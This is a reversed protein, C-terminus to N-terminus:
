IPDVQGELPVLFSPSRRYETPTKGDSGITRVVVTRVKGDRVNPKADTVLAIKWRSRPLNEGKLLVIEGEKPARVVEGKNGKGFGREGLDGLYEKSFRNWFSQLLKNLFKLRERAIQPDKRDIKIGDIPPLDTLNFGSILMSPTLAGEGEPGDYVYTLPRCNIICEAEYVFTLFEEYELSTGGVVKKINSKFLGVVREIFGGQWPARELYFSWQIRRGQLFDQLKKSSFLVKLERAVCKFTSANDSIITSPFGRRSFFRRFGMMFGKVSLSQVAEFHVARVVACTFVLCYGKADRGKLSFPGAFDLGVHLFPRSVGLRCKPLPPPPPLAFAKALVKRCVFCDRLLSTVLKRGRPIYFEAKVSALTQRVGAHGIHHHINIILIKTFKSDNPLLIPYFQSHPLSSDALRTYCRLVEVETDWFLGFQRIISSPVKDGMVVNKHNNQCFKLERQYHCRQVSRVWELEIEAPTKPSFTSWDVKGKRCMKFAFMAKYVSRTVSMLRSYRNTVESSICSVLGHLEVKVFSVPSPLERRFDEPMSTFCLNMKGQFPREGTILFSPGEYWLTNGILEELLCGRTPLDAPNQSTHVYNWDRPDSLLMIQKIRNAIFVPWSYHASQIWHLVSMCDTYYVKSHISIHNLMNVATSMLNTLLVASCLEMRPITMGKAPAIRSKSIVLSSKVKIGDNSVLYVVAAYAQSSADCFGCLNYSVSNPLSILRDFKLQPLHVLNNKWVIWDRKIDEPLHDNWDIKALHTRQMLQKAILVFPSLTGLPDFVTQMLSFLQRKTDSNEQNLKELIRDSNISVLDTCTEWILGLVSEKEPPNEGTSTSFVQKLEEDNSNWKCLNFAGLKLTSTALEYFEVCEDKSEASHLCDDVYFNELIKEILIPDLDSNELHHRLTAALIFPSSKLGFPLRQFKYIYVNDDKRWLFRLAEQDVPDIEIQLFAKEIDAIIAYQHLRFRILISALSNILSPGTELCDNLSVAGKFPKASADYVVRLKGTSQKIVSHHPLYHVTSNPVEIHSKDYYTPSIDLNEKVGNVNGLCAVEKIIKSNLQDEIVASYKSMKDENGPLSLKRYCSTLRKFSGKLNTLLKIKPREKFPLKVRYRGNVLSIDREFNDLVPSREEEPPKIGLTELDTLLKMGLEEQESSLYFDSNTDALYVQNVMCNTFQSVIRQHGQNIKVTSPGALVEGFKTSLLVLGPSLSIYSANVFEYYYDLGLLIDISYLGEHFIEPDALQLGRDRITSRISEDLPIGEVKGCMQPNTMMTVTVEKFGKSESDIYWISFEVLKCHVSEVDHGFTSMQYTFEGLIKLDLRKAVEDSIYSRNSGSDPLIRARLSKGSSSNSITAMATQMYVPTSTVKGQLIMSVSYNNIKGGIVARCVVKSHKKYDGCSLNCKSSEPCYYFPHGFNLCNRCLRKEWLIDLYVEKNSHAKCDHSDHEESNCFVCARHLPPSIQISSTQEPRIPQSHFSSPNNTPNNPPNSNSPRSNSSHSNSSRPNSSQSNLPQSWHAPRGPRQGNFTHPRFGRNTSQRPHHRFRSSFNVHASPDSSYQNCSCSPSQISSISNCHLQPSHCSTQCPCSNYPVLSSDTPNSNSPLMSSHFDNSQSVSLSEFQQEVHECPHCSHSHYTHRKSPKTSAPKEPTSLIGGLHFNRENHIVQKKLITMVDDISYTTQDITLDTLKRRLREPLLRWIHGKAADGDASNKTAKRLCHLNERVYDYLNNLDKDTKCPEWHAIDLLKQLYVAEGLPTKDYKEDLLEWMEQLAGPQVPDIFKLLKYPESDKVLTDLLYCSQQMESLNGEEMLSQFVAKYLHYENYEGSFTRLKLPPLSTNSALRSSDLSINVKAPAPEPNPTSHDPPTSPPPTQPPPETPKPSLIPNIIVDVRDKWGGIWTHYLEIDADPVVPYGIVKLFSRSVEIVAHRISHMHEICAAKDTEEIGEKFNNTEADLHPVVIKWLRTCKGKLVINNGKVAQYEAQYRQLQEEELDAVDPSEFDINPNDTSLLSRNAM